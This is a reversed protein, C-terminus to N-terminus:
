QKIKKEKISFTAIVPNHDSLSLNPSSYAMCELFSEEHLIYDIRLTPFIKNYTRGFGFGKAVFADGLNGKIKRYAFSGPMDNFDGCVIHPLNDKQLISDILNAQQARKSATLMLKELINKTESDVKTSLNGTKSEVFEVDNKNFTVSQLHTTFIRINKNHDLSVDAGLMKYYHGEEDIDYVQVNSLPFKSFIANGGRIM